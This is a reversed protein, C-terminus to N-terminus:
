LWSPGISRQLAAPKTDGGTLPTMIEEYDNAAEQERMLAAQKARECVKAGYHILCMLLAVGGFVIAMIVPSSM